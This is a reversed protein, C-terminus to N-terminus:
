KHVEQGGSHRQLLFNHSGNGVGEGGGVCNGM